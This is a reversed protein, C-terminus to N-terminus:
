QNIRKIFDRKYNYYDSMPSIELETRIGNEIRYNRRIILEVCEELTRLVVEDEDKSKIGVQNALGRGRVFSKPQKKEDVFDWLYFEEVFKDWPKDCNSIRCYPIWIEKAWNQWVEYTKLTCEIAQKCVNLHHTYTDCNRGGLNGTRKNYMEPIPIYNGDTHYMNEFLELLKCIKPNNRERANGWVKNSTLIDGVITYEPFKDSKLYYGCMSTRFPRGLIESGNLEWMKYIKYRKYNEVADKCVEAEMSSLRVYMKTVFVKNSCMDM